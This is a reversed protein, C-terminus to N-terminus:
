QRSNLYSRSKEGSFDKDEGICRLESAQCCGGLALGNGAVPVFM